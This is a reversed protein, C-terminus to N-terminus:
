CSISWRSPVNNTSRSRPEGCGVLGVKIANTVSQASIIAPFGAAIAAGAAGGATKLFERRHSHTSEQKM